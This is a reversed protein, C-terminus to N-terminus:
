KPIEMTINDESKIFYETLNYKTNFKALYYSSIDNPHFYTGLVGIVYTNVGRYTESYECDVYIDGILKLYQEKDIVKYDKINAILYAPDYTFRLVRLENVNEYMGLIVVGFKKIM